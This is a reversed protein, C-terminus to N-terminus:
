TCSTQFSQLWFLLVPSPSTDHSIEPAVPLDRPELTFLDLCAHLIAGQVVTDTGRHDRKALATLQRIGQSWFRAVSTTVTSQERRFVAENRENWLHTLCITCMLFWIRKWGEVAAEIDDQFRLFLRHRQRSPIAPAQRTACGLFIGTGGLHAM